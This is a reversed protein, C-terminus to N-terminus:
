HIENLACDITSFGLRQCREILHLGSEDLRLPSIFAARGIGRWREIIPFLDRDQTLVIVGDYSKELLSNESVKKLWTDAQNLGQPVVTFTVQTHSERKFKSLTHITLQEALVLSRNACVHIHLELENSSLNKIKHTIEQDSLSDADILTLLPGGSLSPARGWPIASRRRQDLLIKNLRHISAKSLHDTNEHLM